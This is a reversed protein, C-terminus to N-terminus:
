SYLQKYIWFNNLVHKVYTKTEDYPINEIFEDPDLNGFRKRWNKIAVPGANYSAIAHIMNNDFTQFVDEMYNVGLKINIEPQMLDKSTPPRMELGRALSRATYPMLQMLGIAGVKSVIDKQYRSEQKILSHALLPDVKLNKSVEDAVLGAYPMPFAYQFKIEHYDVASNKPMSFYATSIAKLYDGAMAYLWMKLNKDYDWGEQKENELLFEFQGIKSLELLDKGYQKAIEEDTYVEPWDWDPLSVFKNPSPMKYWDKDDRLIQEARYGYYDRPHEIVLNELTAKADKTQNLKEYARAAWFAVFPHSNTNPYSKWHKRFIEVAKHYNQRKYEKWFVRSMSEAAYYSNPFQTYVAQYDAKTKTRLALEWLIKDKILPVKNKLVTLNQIAQWKPSLSCLLEVLHSAKHSEKMQPLTDVILRRAEAKRKLKALTRAYADLYLDPSDLETNFHKIANDYDERNYYSLAVQNSLDDFEAREEAELSAVQDSILYALSGEPSKRLYNKLRTFKESRDKTMNALYYDAGLSFETNPFLEQVQNFAKRAELLRSQRSYSKALRYLFRAEKPFKKSLYDLDKVVIGELGIKEAIRTRLGLSYKTLYDRDLEYAHLMALAPENIDQYLRALVFARRNALKKPLSVFTELSRIAERPETRSKQILRDLEQEVQQYRDESLQPYKFYDSTELYYLASASLMIFAALAYSFYKFEQRRFIQQIKAAYDQLASPAKAM